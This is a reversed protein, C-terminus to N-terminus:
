RPAVLIEAHIDKSKSGEASATYVYLTVTYTGPFQYTHTPNQLDSGSGDGFDWLWGTILESSFTEDHFNVTFPIFGNSPNADFNVKPQNM